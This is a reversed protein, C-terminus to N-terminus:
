VTRNQKEINIIDDISATAASASIEKQIIQIGNPKNLHAQLFSTLQTLAADDPAFGPMYQIEIKASTDTSASLLDKASAGVSRNTAYSGPNYGNESDSKSCGAVTVLMAYLIPIYKKM